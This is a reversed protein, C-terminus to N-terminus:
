PRPPEELVNVEFCDQGASHKWFEPNSAVDDRLRYTESDTAFEGCLQYRTSDLREYKYPDGSVPDTKPVSPPLTKPLNVPQDRNLSQQAQRHLSRAIQYLDQLRQQDLRIQRQKQPSGLLWFGVTTTVLVAVTALITFLRNNSLNVISRTATAVLIFLVM